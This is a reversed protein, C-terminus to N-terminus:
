RRNSPIDAVVMEKCHWSQTPGSVYDSSLFTFLIKERHRKKEFDM